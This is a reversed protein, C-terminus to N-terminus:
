KGTTAPATSPTSAASTAKKAEEKFIKDLDDGTLPDILQHTVAAVVLGGAGAAVGLGVNKTLIGTTVGAIAGTGVAVAARIMLSSTAEEKNRPKKPANSSSQKEAPKEGTAEKLKEQVKEVLKPDTPDIGLEKAKKLTDAPILNVASQVLSPKEEAMGVNENDNMGRPYLPSINPIRASAGGSRPSHAVLAATRSM